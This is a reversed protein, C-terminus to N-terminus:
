TRASHRIIDIGKENGCFKDELFAIKRTEPDWLDLKVCYEFITQANENNINLLSLDGSCLAVADKLYDKVGQTLARNVHFDKKTSERDKYVPKTKNKELVFHSLQADPSTLWIELFLHFRFVPTEPNPGANNEFFGITSNKKTTWQQTSGKTAFYYGATEKQTLQYLYKQITGSYGLDVLAIANDSTYKVEKLYTLLATKECASHAHIKDIFPRVWDLVKQTDRPISIVEQGLHVNIENFDVGMRNFFLDRLTGNFNNNAIIEKLINEKKDVAGIASRRSTLLYISEPLKKYYSKVEKLDVFADFMEKLLYGERALFYLTHVNSKKSRECLWIFYALILPGFVCYGTDEPSKLVPDLRNTNRNIFPDNFLKNIIPGLFLHDRWDRPNKSVYNIGITSNLFMNVSSMVHYSVFGKDVTLQIDSHENDGIHIFNKSNIKEKEILYDWMLGNDKRKLVDSSLYLQAYNRIGNKELLQQIQEKELYMDSVLIVKKKKSIADKYIAIMTERPCSLELEFEFEASRAAKIIQAELLNEQLMTNYIDSYGVERKLQTRAIEEAQKRIQLYNTKAKFIKDLNIELLSFLHDPNILPRSILTDFIDFSVIEKSDIAATLEPISKAAYQHFNKSGYGKAYVNDYFSLEVYNFGNANAVYAIAREMGHAFTGDNGCPEEKFDELAITGDTFHKLAEPRFWFMSGMPYDIYGNLPLSIQLKNQLEHAIGKNSLWSYAWYPLLSSIPYVLGTHSDSQFMEVINKVIQESGLMNGVLQRRWETQEGGTYLSKKSHIKCVLDYHPIENKFSIFAPAMDRGRNPVKKITISKFAKKDAWDKAIRMGEDSVVSLLIDYSVPIHTTYNLLEIILDEYFAHIVVAIKLKSDIQIDTRHLNFTNSRLPDRGEKEGITLYHILPNIRSEAVDPYALLYNATDFKSSPQRGEYGGSILYHVFPDVKAIRIDPNADLYYEADFFDTHKLLRIQEDFRIKFYKEKVQNFTNILKDISIDIPVLVGKDSRGIREAPAGIDFAVLPVDMSILEDTVYSFTEPWISPFLFVNVGSKEIIGPLESPNYKGTVALRTSNIGADPLLGIVTIKGSKNQEFVEILQKLIGAGKHFNINGVVGLHLESNTVSLIPKRAIEGSLRHPIVKIKSAFKDPYVKSLISRSSESFCLIATSVELLNEWHKRWVEIPITKGFYSNNTKICTNCVNINTEAGCYKDKNNLLTFSQCIMYYDHIAITVNLRKKKQLAVLSDLFELPDGYFVMNNYFVNELHLLSLFRFFDKVNSFYHTQKFSKYQIDFQYSQFEYNYSILGVPESNHKNEIRKQLYVNAGGGLQHDIYLALSTKAHACCLDIFSNLRFSALPDDSIHKGVEKMYDPHRELLLKTNREILQKKEESTFSGGHKHWVFLGPLIVNRFGLKVSRRCWDNEEGYGKGFTDQDFVGTKIIAARSMAMCFGVGTPCEVSVEPAYKKFAGDIQDVTMGLFLANDELVLPFSAITGANTMPTVSAISPDTRIPTLLRSLWDKPLATDSNLIVVDNTSAALGLNVSKVFGLNSPNSIILVDKFQTNQSELLPHIRKDPSADDVLILRFDGDTNKKLQPLLDVLFEFGNYIPVIIDVQRAFLPKSPMKDRDLSKFLNKLDIYINPKRGETKGFRLFHSFPNIKLSKVDPNSRLYFNTNFERSPNRGEMWGNSLFHELPDLGAQKVDPNSTLYFNRDFAAETIQLIEPTRYFLALKEEDSLPKSIQRGEFKGYLIYHIFPNIDASRVDPNSHLYFATNFERNPNRGEKWGSTLFHVLPDVGSQRVDPNTDLYHNQDFAAELNEYLHSAESITKKIEENSFSEAGTTNTQTGSAIETGKNAQGSQPGGKFINKLSYIVRDKIIGFLKRKEYTEKYWYLEKELDKLKKKESDNM